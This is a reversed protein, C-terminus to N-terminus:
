NCNRFENRGFLTLISPDTALSDANLESFFDSTQDSSNNLRKFSKAAYQRHDEKHEILNVQGFSSRGIKKVIKFNSIDFEPFSDM